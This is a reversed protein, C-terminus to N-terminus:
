MGTEVGCLTKTSDMPNSVIDKYFLNIHIWDFNESYLVKLGYKATVKLAQNLFYFLKPIKKM